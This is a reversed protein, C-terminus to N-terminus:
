TGDTPNSPIVRPNMTDENQNDRGAQWSQIADDPSPFTAQVPRWDPQGSGTYTGYIQHQYETLGTLPNNLKIIRDSLGLRLVVAMVKDAEFAFGAQPNPVAVVEFGLSREKATIEDAYPKRGSMAFGE